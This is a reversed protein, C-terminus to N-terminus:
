STPEETYTADLFERAVALALSVAGQALEAHVMDRGQGSSAWLRTAITAAPLLERALNKEATSPKSM